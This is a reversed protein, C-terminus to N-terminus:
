DLLDSLRDLTSTQQETLSNLKDALKLRATIKARMLDTEPCAIATDLTNSLRRMGFWKNQENREKRQAQIGAQVDNFIAQKLADQQEPSLNSMIADISM